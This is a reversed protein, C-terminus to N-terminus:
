SRAETSRSESEPSVPNVQSGDRVKVVGRDIISDGAKLGQKVTIRNEFVRSITIFQKHVINQENLLYVYQRNGDFMVSRAPVSLEPQESLAVSVQMLLGPRLQGQTNDLLVRAKYTLTQPDVRPTMSEIRGTFVQGPWVSSTATVSTGTTVENLSSEPLEFDLKMTSLDDLTTVTQNANILAGKSLDHFGLTGSFPAKIRHYSLTVKEADLVAEAIEVQAELASLTDQSLAGKKFLVQQNALQRKLDALTVRVEAVRAAQVRNDLTILTEGKSVTIGDQMRTTIVRGSIEPAINVSRNARLHGLSRLAHPIIQREVQTITVSPGKSQIQTRAQAQSVLGLSATITLIFVPIVATLRSHYCMLKQLM